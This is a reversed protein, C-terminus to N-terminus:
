RRRGGGPAGGSVPPLLAVEVGESLEHEGPALEGGVAVALRPWIRELEPHREVLVARLASVRSGAPLEVEVPEPGLIDSATAFAVVSIKM